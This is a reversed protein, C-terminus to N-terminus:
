AGFLYGYDDLFATLQETSMAELQDDMSGAAEAAEKLAAEADSGSKAFNMTMAEADGEGGLDAATMILAITDNEITGNVSTDGEVMSFATGDVTYPSEESDSGNNFTLTGDERLEMYSGEYGFDAPLMVLPGMKLSVLNYTGLYDPAEEVVAEEAASEEEAPASSGGCGALALALIGALLLALLSKKKM